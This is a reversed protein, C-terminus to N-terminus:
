LPPDAEQGTATFWAELHDKLEDVWETVPRGASDGFNAYSLEDQASKLWHYFDFVDRILTDELSREGPQEM